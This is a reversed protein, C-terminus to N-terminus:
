LGGPRERACLDCLYGPEMNMINMNLTGHEPSVLASRQCAGTSPTLDQGCLYLASAVGSGVPWPASKLWQRSGYITRQESSIM